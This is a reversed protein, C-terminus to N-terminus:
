STVGSVVVNAVMISKGSAAATTNYPYLRLYLTQGASIAVGLSPYNSLLRSKFRWREKV